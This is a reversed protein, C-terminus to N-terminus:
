EDEEIWDVAIDSFNSEQYLHIKKRKFLELLALFTVVLNQPSPDNAILERLGTKKRQRIIHDVISVQTELAIRKPAIHEAELLLGQKRSNLDACILALSHLSVNELYDPIYSLYEPDPGATRPHMMSELQARAMLNASVNKFQKYLMLRALLVDRMEDASLSAFEEDEEFDDGQSGLEDQPILSAAKLELLSSAVLLFDSAVELDLEEIRRVEELYQEVVETISIAAIDVKQRSVLQLLLDFPGEFAQTSIRYSM